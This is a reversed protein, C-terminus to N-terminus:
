KPGSIPLAEKFPGKENAKIPCWFSVSAMKHPEGLFSLGWLDSDVGVDWLCQKIQRKLRAGSARWPSQRARRAAKWSMRHLVQLLDPLLMPRLILRSTQVIKRGNRPNGHQQVPPIIPGTPQNQIEQSWNEPNRTLPYSPIRDSLDDACLQAKPSVFSFLIPEGQYIPRLVSRFWHLGDIELWVRFRVGIFLLTLLMLLLLLSSFNRMCYRIPLVWHGEDPVEAYELGLGLRSVPASAGLHLDLTAM